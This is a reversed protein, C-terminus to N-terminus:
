LTMSCKATTVNYSFARGLTMVMTHPPTGILFAASNILVVLVLTEPRTALVFDM